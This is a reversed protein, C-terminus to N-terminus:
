VPPNAKCACCSLYPIVSGLPWLIRHNIRAHDQHGRICDTLGDEHLGELFGGVIPMVSVPMTVLLPHNIGAFAEYKDWAGPKLYYHVVVMKAIMGLSHFIM